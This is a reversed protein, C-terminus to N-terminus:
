TEMAEGWSRVMGLFPMLAAINSSKGRILLSIFFSESAMNKFAVQTLELKLPSPQKALPDSTGKNTYSSNALLPTSHQVLSGLSTNFVPIRKLTQGSQTKPCQPGNHSWVFGWFGEVQQGCFGCSYRCRSSARIKVLMSSTAGENGILCAKSLKTCQHIVTFCCKGM